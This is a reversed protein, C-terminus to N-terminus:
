GDVDIHEIKVTLVDVEASFERISTANMFSDGIHAFHTDDTCPDANHSNASVQRRRGSDAGHKVQIAITGLTQNVLFLDVVPLSRIM